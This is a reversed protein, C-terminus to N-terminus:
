QWEMRFKFLDKIVPQLEEETLFRFQDDGILWAVPQSPDDFNVSIPNGCVDFGGNDSLHYQTPMNSALWCDCSLSDKEVDCVRNIYVIQDECFTAEEQTMVVPFNLAAHGWKNEFLRLKSVSSTDMVQSIFEYDLKFQRLSINKVEM